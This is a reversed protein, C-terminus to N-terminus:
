YDNNDEELQAGRAILEQIKEPDRMIGIVEAGKGQLSTSVNADEGLGGIAAISSGM